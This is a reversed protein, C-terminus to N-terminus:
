KGKRKTRAAPSKPQETARGPKGVRGASKAGPTALGEYMTELLGILRSLNKYELIIEHTLWVLEGEMFFSIGDIVDRAKILINRSRAIHWRRSRLSKDHTM